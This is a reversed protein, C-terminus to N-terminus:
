KGKSTSSAATEIMAQGEVPEPIVEPTASSATVGGATRTKTVPDFVYQGGQGWAPCSKFDAPPNGVKAQDNKL